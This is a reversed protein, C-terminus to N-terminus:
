PDIETHLQIQICQMANKKIKGWFGHGAGIPNSFDLLNHLITFVINEIHQYMISTYLM